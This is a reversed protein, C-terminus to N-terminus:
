FSACYRAPLKIVKCTLCNFFTTQRFFMHCFTVRKRRDSFCNPFMMEPIDPHPAARLSNIRHAFRTHRTNIKCPPLLIAQTILLAILRKVAKVKVTEKKHSIVKVKLNKPPPPASNLPSPQSKHGSGERCVSPSADMVFSDLDNLPWLFTTLSRM